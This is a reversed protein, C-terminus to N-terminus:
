ATTVDGEPNVDFWRMGNNWATVVDGLSIAEKGLVGAVGPRMQLDLTVPVGDYTKVGNGDAGPNLVLKGDILITFYGIGAIEFLSRSFPTPQVSLEGPAILCRRAKVWKKGIKWRGPEAQTSPLFQGGKYFYGNVGVEGGKTAQTRSM